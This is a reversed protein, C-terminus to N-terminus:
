NLYYVIFVAWILCTIIITILVSSFTDKFSPSKSDIIDMISL